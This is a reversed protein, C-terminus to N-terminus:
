EQAELHRSYHEVAEEVFQKMTLGYRVKAQVVIQKVHPPVYVNLQEQPGTTTPRHRRGDNPNLRKEAKARSKVTAGGTKRPAAKRLAALDNMDIDAVDSM